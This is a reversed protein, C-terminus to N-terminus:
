CITTLPFKQFRQTAAYLMGSDFILDLAPDDGIDFGSSLALAVLTVQNATTGRAALRNVLPRLLSQFRPKLDYVTPV